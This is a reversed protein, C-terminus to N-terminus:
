LIEEMKNEFAFPFGHPECLVRVAVRVCSRTSFYISIIRYSEMYKDITTGKPLRLHGWKRSDAVVVASCGSLGIDPLKAFIAM